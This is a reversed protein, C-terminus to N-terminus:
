PGDVITGLVCEHTHYVPGIMFAVLETDRVVRSSVVRTGAGVTGIRRFGYWASDHPAVIVLRRYRKVLESDARVRYGVGLVGSRQVDATQTLDKRGGCGGALATLIGLAGLTYFRRTM